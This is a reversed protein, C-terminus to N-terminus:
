IQVPGTGATAPMQPFLNGRWDLVIFVLFSIPGVNSSQTMAPAALPVLAARVPSSAKTSTAQYSLCVPRELDEPKRNSWM